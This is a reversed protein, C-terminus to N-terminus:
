EWDISLYISYLVMAACPMFFADGMLHRQEAPSLPSEPGLSRGQLLCHESGALFRDFFFSYLMTSGALGPCNNCQPKSWRKFTVAQSVDMLFGKRLDIRQSSSSAGNDVSYTLRLARKANVM